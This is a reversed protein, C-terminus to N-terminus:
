GGIYAIAPYGSAGMGGAYVEGFPGVALAAALNFMGDNRLFSWVPEVQAPSFARM